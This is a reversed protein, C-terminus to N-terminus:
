RKTPSKLKRLMESKRHLKQIVDVLQGEKEDDDFSADVTEASPKGVPSSVTKLLSRYQHNLASFEEELSQIIHQLDGDRANAFSDATGVQPAPKSQTSPARAPSASVLPAALQARAMQTAVNAAAKAAAAPSSKSGPKPPAKPRGGPSANSNKAAV